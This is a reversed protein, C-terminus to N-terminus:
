RAYLNFKKFLKFIHYLRIFLLVYKQQVIMVFTTIQIRWYKHFMKLTIFIKDTIDYDFINLYPSYKEENGASFKHLLM